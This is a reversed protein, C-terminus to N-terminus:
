SDMIPADRRGLTRERKQLSNNTGKNEAPQKVTIAHDTRLTNFPGHKSFFKKAQGMLSADNLTIGREEALRAALEASGKPGKWNIAQGPWREEAFDLVKGIAQEQQEPSLSKFDKINIGSDSISFLHGAFQAQYYPQQTKENIKFSPDVNGEGFIAQATELLGDGSSPKAVKATADPPTTENRGQLIAEALAKQEPTFTKNKIKRELEENSMKNLAIVDGISLSCPQEKLAANMANPTASPIQEKAAAPATGSVAEAKAPEQEELAANMTETMEPTIQYKAAGNPMGSFTETKGAEQEELAANMAETMDPTIQYKASGNATGPFKQEKEKLPRGTPDQKDM